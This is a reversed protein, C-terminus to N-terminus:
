LSRNTTIKMQEHVNADYSQLKRHGPKSSQSIHRDQILDNHSTIPRRFSQFGENKNTEIFYQKQHPRGGETQNTQLIKLNSNRNKSSRSANRVTSSPRKGSQQTDRWYRSSLEPDLQPMTMESVMLTHNVQSSSARETRKKNKDTPFGSPYRKYSRKEVIHRHINNIKSSTSRNTSLQGATNETKIERKIGCGNLQNPKSSESNKHAKDKEYEITNHSVMIQLNLNKTLVSSSNMNLPSASRSEDEGYKYNTLIERALRNSPHQHKSKVRRQYIESGKM